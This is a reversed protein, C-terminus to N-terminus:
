PFSPFFFTHPIEEVNDNSQTLTTEETTTTTSSTTEAEAEEATSAATDSNDNNDNNIVNGNTIEKISGSWIYNEVTCTKVEGPSITGDCDGVYKVCLHYEVVANPTEQIYDTNHRFGTGFCAVENPQSFTRIIDDIQRETVSYHFKDLNVPTGQPTVNRVTAVDKFIQVAFDSEHIVPCLEETCQIYQGSDPGAPLGSGSPSVCEFLEPSTEINQCVFLKKKINVIPDTNQINDNYSYYNENNSDDNNNDYYGEEDNTQDQEYLLPHHEQKEQSQVNTISNGLSTAPFFLSALGIFIFFNFIRLKRNSM